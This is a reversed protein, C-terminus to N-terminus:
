ILIYYSLILKDFWVLILHLPGHALAKASQGHLLLDPTLIGGTVFIRTVFFFVVFFVFVWERERQVKLLKKILDFWM